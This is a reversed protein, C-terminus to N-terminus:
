SFISLGMWSLKEKFAATTKAEDHLYGKSIGPGFALLEGRVGIPAVRQPDDADAVVLLNGTSGRGMNTPLDATPNERGAHHYQNIM